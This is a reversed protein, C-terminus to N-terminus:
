GPAADIVDLPQGGSRRDTSGPNARVAEMAEDNAIWTLDATARRKTAAVSRVPGAPDMATAM